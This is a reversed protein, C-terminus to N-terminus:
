FFEYFIGVEEFKAIKRKDNTSKILFIILINIKAEDVSNKNNCNCNVTSKNQDVHSRECNGYCWDRM